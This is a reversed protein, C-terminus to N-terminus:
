KRRIARFVKKDGEQGLSELQLFVLSLEIMRGSKVRVTLHEEDEDLTVVTCRGFTAHEVIDGSSPMEVRAMAPERPLVSSIMQVKDWSVPSDSSARRARDADKETSTGSKEPSFLRFTPLGAASFSSQIVVDDWADLYVWVNVVQAARLSGCHNQLTNDAGYFTVHALGQIEPAQNQEVVCGQWQVLEARTEVLFPENKLTNEGEVRQLTGQGSFWGSRIRHTHCYQRLAQILDAGAEVLLVHKRQRTSQIFQM